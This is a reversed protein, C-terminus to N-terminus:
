EITEEEKRITEEEEAQQLEAEKLREEEKIIMDKAFQIYQLTPRRATCVYACLGCEICADIEYRRTELFLGFESYRGLLHPQIHVPCVRVCEGCNVCPNDTVEIIETADQVIIADSHETIPYDSSFYATGRMPGGIILRDRDDITVGCHSLIDSVLTGLRVKLVRPSPIGKGAVTLVKEIQPKGDRLLRLMAILKELSIVLVGIDEPTGGEPVEKGIVKHVLLHPHGNPYVPKLTSVTVGDSAVERALGQLHEPAALIVRSAGFVHQCAALGAQIDSSNETLIPQSIAVIPESDFANVIVTDIQGEEPMLFWDFESLKNRLEEPPKSLYDKDPIISSDWEDNGQNEIAVATFSEGRAGLLSSLEKVEGTVSSIAGSNNIDSALRQGTKVKDGEAVTANLEGNPDKLLIVVRTPTLFEEVPIDMQNYELVPPLFKFISRIRM